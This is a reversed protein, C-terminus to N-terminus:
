DCRVGRVYGGPLRDFTSRVSPERLRELDIDSRPSRFFDFLNQKPRVVNLLADYAIVIVADKGHKTVCQPNGDLARQVIESFQSKADQLQRRHCHEPSISSWLASVMAPRELAFGHVSESEGAEVPVHRRIEGRKGM